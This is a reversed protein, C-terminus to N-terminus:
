LREIKQAAEDLIAAVDYVLEPPTGERALREVVAGRLNHIARRVPAGDTRGALEALEALRAALAEVRERNAALEAEGEATLAYQRRSGERADTEAVLGMDALMTLLPYLVGPSPQYAGGSKEAFARILQYGHRPEEGILWLVLLRLEEGDFRKARRGGRGGFPGGRHGGGHGGGPGFGGFPGGGDGDFGGDFGGGFRGGFLGRGMGRWGRSWAFGRGSGDHFGHM